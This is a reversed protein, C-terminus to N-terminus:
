YMIYEYSDPQLNRANLFQGEHNFTLEKLSWSSNTKIAVIMEYNSSLDSRNSLVYNLFNAEPIDTGYVYQEQIKVLEFKSSRENLYQEIQELIPIPLDRKKVTVEIDELNGSRDFEVSHWYKKFKFKSEFSEKEGDVEKYFRIRKVKNPLSNFHSQAIKPFAELQIRTEKEDKTQCSATQWSLLLLLSLCLCNKFCTKRM